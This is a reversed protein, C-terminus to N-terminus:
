SAADQLAQKAAELRVSAEEWAATDADLLAKVQAYQAVAAQNAAADGYVAPDELRKTLVALQMEHAAITEELAEVQKQLPGVHKSRRNREEAERRKREKDAARDVPRDPAREPSAVDATRAVQSVVAEGDTGKTVRRIKGREQGTPGLKIEAKAQLAAGQAQTEGMRRREALSFLYEDLTGPYNEVTQNEVNWIKTALSRILSRNHSVFLLTGDFTQLSQALSEASDLDLHNTPEDMLLLSGPNILLRALALRAREGGSLVRVQKDVTDGSFMFAGLVARVRSQPAEPNARQAVEVVTATLDLTDAHHQAYYGVTVGQGITITGSDKPIEGALMRLLTTKGAGNVGIMGIKEGRRVTLNLSPFVVHDGYAKRVDTIRIVDNVTRATPAFSFKMVAHSQPADITELKELLKMKSQAAAAKSAKARFRDVFRELRERERAINKARNGLVIMEEQRQKRYADHNGPYIRVGEPEFSVVKNIQENLFERDHSILIFAGRYRQLFEAFWAVSPMDLHNTPEDLLLVEPRQFLLGALVARMKWGGSFEKLDRHEDGPRFGLGTIIAYAQHEGYDREFHDLQEHLDSIRISADTIAEVDDGNVIAELQTEVAALADHLESRGPVGEVVFQLLTKGGEVAIDQPLWGVRVGKLRTVKGEDLEQTGAIVKLMTTKGSGNPGILGIRDGAILRLTVEDFIIRDGFLLSANELVLLSM